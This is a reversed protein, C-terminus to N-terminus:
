WTKAGYFSMSHEYGVEIEIEGFLQDGLGWRGNAAGAAHQDDIAGGAVVVVIKEAIERM